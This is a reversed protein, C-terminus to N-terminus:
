PIFTHSSHIKNRYVSFFDYEYTVHYEMMSSEIDSGPTRWRTFITNEVWNSDTMNVELSNVELSYMKCKAQHEYTNSLDWVNVLLKYQYIFNIM